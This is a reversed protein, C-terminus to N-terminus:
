SIMTFARVYLGALWLLIGLYILWTKRFVAFAGLLLIYGARLYQATHFEGFKYIFHSATFIAWLAFILRMNSNFYARTESGEDLTFVHVLM